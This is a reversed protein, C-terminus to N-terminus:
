TVRQSHTHTQVLPHVNNDRLIMWRPVGGVKQLARPKCTQSPQGALSSWPSGTEVVTTNPNCTHERHQARPIALLCKVLQAM